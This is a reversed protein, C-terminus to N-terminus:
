TKTGNNCILAFLSTDPDQPDFGALDQATLTLEPFLNQMMSVSVSEGLRIKDLFVHRRFRFPLWQSKLQNLVKPLQDAAYRAVALYQTVAALRDASVDADLWACVGLQQSAWNAAGDSVVVIDWPAHGVVIQRHIQSIATMLAETVASVRLIATSPEAIAAVDSVWADPTPNEWSHPKTLRAPPLFIGTDQTFLPLMGRVMAMPTTADTDPCWDLPIPDQQWCASVPYYQMSEFWQRYQVLLTASRELVAATIAVPLACFVHDHQRQYQEIAPCVVSGLADVNPVSITPVSDHLQGDVVVLPPMLPWLLSPLQNLVTRMVPEARNTDVIVAQTQLGWQLFHDIVKAAQTMSIVRYTDGLLVEAAVHVSRQLSILVIWQTDKM